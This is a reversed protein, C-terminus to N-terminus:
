SSNAKRYGSLTTRVKPEICFRLSCAWRTKSARRPKSEVRDLLDEGLAGIVGPQPQRHGVPQFLRRAEASHVCVGLRQGPRLLEPEDADGPAGPRPLGGGQPLQAPQPGVDDVAVLDVMLQQQAAISQPLFQGAAEAPLDEGRLPQFPLFSPSSTKRSLAAM